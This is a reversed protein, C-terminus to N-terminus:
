MFFTLVIYSIGQCHFLGLRTLSIEYGTSRPPAVGTVNWSFSIVLRLRDKDLDVAPPFESNYVKGLDMILRPQLAGGARNYPTEIYILGM